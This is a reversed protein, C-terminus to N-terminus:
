MAAPMVVHPSKGAEQPMAEWAPLEMYDKFLEEPLARCVGAESTLSMKVAREKGHRDIQPLCVEKEGVLCKSDLSGGGSFREQFAISFKGKSQQQAKAAPSLSSAPCAVQALPSPLCTAPQANQRPSPPNQKQSERDWGERRKRKWETM